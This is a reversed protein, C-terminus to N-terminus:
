GDGRRGEGGARFTASSDRILSDSFRPRGGGSWDTYM